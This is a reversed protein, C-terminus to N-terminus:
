APCLVTYADRLMTELEFTELVRQQAAAGYRQRLRDDDALTQMAEALAKGDGVPVTIGTEGDLSVHPVGTPLKTNIVPKGYVMAELQVIGFAESNQVSPLVFFDCDAFASKLDADSLRGLFHVRADMGAAKTRSRLTQELDGQGALFLECGTVHSFAELLVEVGKYYVLRGTFLIKKAAPDTLRATLYPTLPAQLYDATRIGYPIVHCKGRVEQLFASGDIHGKTAVIIADARRLLWRLLPQYFFLLKKQKVVDSHWALVVRGRYGSLLCALDALPFPMHLEVVDAQKALKRFKLLFSLSLPCSFLTTLTGCRLVEVGGVQEAVRRGRERCVLVSVKARGSLGEAMQQVVTEIGGIHPAYLKNVQLIHYPEPM